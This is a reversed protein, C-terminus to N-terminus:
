CINFDRDLPYTNSLGLISNNMPYLSKCTDIPNGYGVKSCTVGLPLLSPYFEYKITHMSLISTYRLALVHDRGAITEKLRNELESVM